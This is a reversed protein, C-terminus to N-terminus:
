GSRSGTATRPSGPSTGRRAPWTPPPASWLRGAGAPGAGLRRPGHEQAPQPQARDHAQLDGRHRAREVAALLATRPRIVFTYTRGGDSVTPVARAADPVLRLGAPGPADPYNLLTSCIAYEIPAGDIRTRWPRTSSVHHVVARERRAHRGLAARGAAAPREGLGQRGGRRAGAPQRRRHRARDAPEHARRHADADRRRANAVWISGDGEAIASPRVGSRSRRSRGLEDRSRDVQGDRRACRRGLGRPPRRDGGVTWTRGPDHHDCRDRRRRARRPEGRPLRAVLQRLGARRGDTRREPRDPELTRGSRADIRTLFGSRPAVVVANRGATALSGTDGPVVMPLRRVRTVTDFTPDIRDLTLSTDTDSELRRGLHRRRRGRPEAGAPRAPDLGRCAPLRTLDARRLRRRSVLGLDLRRRRRDGGPAFDIRCSGLLRAHAADVVAVADGNVPAAAAGGHGQWLTVALVVAAVVALAVLAASWGFRRRRPPPAADDNPRRRARSRPLALNPDHRLIAQELSRLEAGPEIGLEDVLRQRGDRYRALADAQRGSRYLATMLQRLLQEDLPEAAVARELEPVLENHRGLALAM